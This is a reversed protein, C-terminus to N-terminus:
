DIGDIIISIGSLPTVSSNYTMLHTSHLDSYDVAYTVFGAWRWQPWQTKHGSVKKLFSNQKEIANVMNPCGTLIAM